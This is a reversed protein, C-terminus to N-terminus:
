GVAVQAAGVDSGRANSLAEFGVCRRAAETYEPCDAPLLKVMSIFRVSPLACWSASYASSQSAKPGRFSVIWSISGAVPFTSSVLVTPKKREPLYRIQFTCPC